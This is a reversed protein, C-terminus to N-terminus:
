NGKLDRGRFGWGRGHKRGARFLTWTEGHLEAIRHWTGPTIRSVDGARYVHIWADRDGHARLETYGGRLIRTDAVEYPHNHLRRDADARHFKHLWLGPMGTEGRELARRIRAANGTLFWRTVYPKGDIPIVVSPRTRAYAYVLLWVLYWFARKV